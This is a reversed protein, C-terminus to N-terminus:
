TAALVDCSTLLMSRKWGSMTMYDPGSVTASGEVWPVLMAGLGLLGQLHETSLQARTDDLSGVPSGPPCRGYSTVSGAQRDPAGVVTVTAGVVVVDVVVVVVVYLLM